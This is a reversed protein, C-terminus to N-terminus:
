RQSSSFTFTRSVSLSFYALSDFLDYVNGIGACSRIGAKLRKCCLKSLLTEKLFQNMVHRDTHVPREEDKYVEKSKDTMTCKSLEDKDLFFEMLLILLRSPKGESNHIIDFRSKQGIYLEIGDDLPVM